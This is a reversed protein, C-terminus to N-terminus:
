SHLYAVGILWPFSKIIKFNKFYAEMLRTLKAPTFQQIHEPHNGLTRIYKGRLLSGIRFFPEHPVSVVVGSKAVRLLESLAERPEKLHELVELSLVLDFTSDKFPLHFIDGQIFFVNDWNNKAWQLAEFNIDLGVGLDANLKSIVFGEGCGAELISKPKLEAVIEEIRKQFNNILKKVVPNKTQYKKLNSSIHNM